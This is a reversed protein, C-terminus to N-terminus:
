PNEKLTPAALPRISVDIGFVVSHSDDAIMNPPQLPVFSELNVTMAPASPISPPQTRMQGFRYGGWGITGVGFIGLALALWTFPLKPMRVDLAVASGTRVLTGAPPNSREVSETLVLWAPQDHRSVNLAAMRGAADDYRLGAVDPIRVVKKVVKLSINAGADFEGIVNREGIWDEEGANEVPFDILRPECNNKKLAAVADTVRYKYVDISKCRLKPAPESAPVPVPVQKSAPKSKPPLPPTPAPVPAPVPVPTPIPDPRPPPPPLPAPGTSRVFFINQTNLGWDIYAGKPKDSSREMFVFKCQRREVLEIYADEAGDGKALLSQALDTCTLPQQVPPGLSRFFIISGGIPQWEIYKGKPADSNKDIIRAACDSREVLTTYAREADVGSAYLRRAVDNCSPPQAPPVPTVPGSSRVFFIAGHGASWEIYTGKPKDSTKERVNVPCERRTVLETYAADASAKKEYLGSAIDFCTNRPRGDSVKLEVPEAAEGFGLFTGVPSESPQRTVTVQCRLEEKIYQAIKGADKVNKAYAEARAKCNTAKPRYIEVPSIVKEVSVPAKLVSKAAPATQVASSTIPLCLAIACAFYTAVVFRLKARQSGTQMQGAEDHIVAFKTRVDRSAYGAILPHKERAATKHV